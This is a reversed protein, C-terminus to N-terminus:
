CADERERVFGKVTNHNKLSEESPNGAVCENTQRPLATSVGEDSWVLQDSQNKQPNDIPQSESFREITDSAIRWSEEMKKLPPYPHFPFFFSRWVIM